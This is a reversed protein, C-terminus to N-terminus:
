SIRRIIYVANDYVCSTSNISGSLEASVEITYGNNKLYSLNCQEIIKCNFNADFRQWFMKKWDNSCFFKGDIEPEM